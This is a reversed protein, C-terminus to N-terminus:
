SMPPVIAQTKKRRPGTHQITAPVPVAPASASTPNSRRHQQKMAQEFSKIIAKHDNVEFIFMGIQEIVFMFLEMDNPDDSQSQGKHMRLLNWTWFAVTADKADTVGPLVIHIGDPGVLLMCREPLGRMVGGAYEKRTPDKTPYM